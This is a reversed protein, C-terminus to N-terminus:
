PDFEGGNTPSASSSTTVPGTAAAAPSREAAVRAVSPDFENTVPRAAFEPQSSQRRQSRTRLGSTAHERPAFTVIRTGGSPRDGAPAARTPMAAQPPARLDREAAREVAMAGGGAVAAASAAVAAVKAAGAADIAAQLKMATMAAREHFAGSMAEFLRAFIGPGPYDEAGTAAVLGAAPFVAALSPGTEHLERITARCARCNRLHPRAQAIQEATAEGDVMASLVDAWRACEAGSEIGAYRALFAKRGEALCRNVKTYTWGTEDCISQYSHGMAKLWMARAEQPKLRRMAEATRTTREWSVVQEEPTEVERSMARDLDAEETGVLQLRGRRVAMAEHKVVTHLWHFARAPDLSAARRMFIELARQYADHADDVCLSHRRATRLLSDAHTTVAQLVLREAQESSRDARAATDLDESNHAHEDAVLAVPEM